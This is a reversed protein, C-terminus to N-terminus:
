RGPQRCDREIGSDDMRVHQRTTETGARSSVWPGVSPSFAGHWEQQLQIGTVIAVRQRGRLRRSGGQRSRSSNTLGRDIADTELSDQHNVSLALIAFTAPHQAPLSAFERRILQAPGAPASVM